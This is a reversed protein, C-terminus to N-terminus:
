WRKRYNKSVKDFDVRRASQYGSPVEILEGFTEKEFPLKKYHNLLFYAAGATGNDGLGAIVIVTKEDPFHSDDKLKLIIGYDIASTELSLKWSNFLNTTSRKIPFSNCFIIRYHKFRKVYFIELWM